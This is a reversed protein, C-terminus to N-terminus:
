CCGHSLVFFICCCLYTAGSIVLGLVSGFAIYVWSKHTRQSITHRLRLLLIGLMQCPTVLLAFFFTSDDPNKIANSICWISPLMCLTVAFIDSIYFQFTLGQQKIKHIARGVLILLFSLPIAEFVVVEQYM